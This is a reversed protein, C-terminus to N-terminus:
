FRGGVRLGAGRDLVLPALAVEPKAGGGRTVGVIVLTLGTAAIAAGAFLTVTSTVALPQGRDIAEQSAARAEASGCTIVDGSEACAREEVLDDLTARDSAALGGTIASVALTLAGVGSLVGGAIVIADTGGAAPPPPPPMKPPDVRPVDPPTKEPPVDPLRTLEITLELSAGEKADIQKTETRHSPASVTFTHSGPDIPVKQGLGELPLEAGDREVRTGPPPAVVRVTIWPLRPELRAISADVFADVDKKRKAGPTEQNLAKARKLEAWARAIYGDHELCRAINVQAGVSPDLKMSADFQPCAEAWKEQKLLEVGKDFLAQAAAPDREQAPASTPLLSLAAALTVGFWRPKM